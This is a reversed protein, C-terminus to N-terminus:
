RAVPSWSSSEDSRSSFVAFFRDQPQRRETFGLIEGSLGSQTYKVPGGYPGTVVTEEPGFGGATDNWRRLIISMEPDEVSASSQRMYTIVVTGGESHLQPDSDMVENTTLRVPEALPASGDESSVVSTWIESGAALAPSPDLMMSQERDIRIFAIVYNQGGPLVAFVPTSSVVDNDLDFGEPTLSWQGDILRTFGIGHGFPAQKLPDLFSWGLIMHHGDAIAIAPPAGTKPIDTVIVASNQVHWSGDHRRRRHASTKLNTGTVEQKGRFVQYQVPFESLRDPVDVPMRGPMDEFIAKAAALYNEKDSGPRIHDLYRRNRIRLIDSRDWIVKDFEEVVTVEFNFIAVVSVTLYITISATIQDLELIPPEEGRAVSLQINEKFTIAGFANAMFTLAGPIIKIDVGISFELEISIDRQEETRKTVGNPDANMYEDVKSDKWMWFLRVRFEVSAFIDVWEKVAKEASRGMKEYLNDVLDIALGAYIMLEHKTRCSLFSLVYGRM